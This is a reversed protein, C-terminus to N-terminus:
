GPPEDIRFQNEMEILYPYTTLIHESMNLLYRYNKKSILNEWGWKSNEKIKGINVWCVRFKCMMFDIIYLGRIVCYLGCDVGSKLGFPYLGCYLQFSESDMGVESGAGSVIGSSVDEWSVVGVSVQILGSPVVRIVSGAYWCDGIWLAVCIKLSEEIM